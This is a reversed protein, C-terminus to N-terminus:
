RGNIIRLRRPKRLAASAAAWITSLLICFCFGEFQLYFFLIHQTSTEFDHYVVVQLWVLVALPETRAISRGPELM